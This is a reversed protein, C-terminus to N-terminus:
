SFYSVFHKIRKIKIEFVFVRIIYNLFFCNKVFMYSFLKKNKLVIKFFFM